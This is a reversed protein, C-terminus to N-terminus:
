VNQQSTGNVVSERVSQLDIKLPDSLYTYGGLIDVKPLARLKSAEYQYQRTQVSQQMQRLTLNNQAAIRFCDELTIDSSQASLVGTSLLFLICTTFIRQM